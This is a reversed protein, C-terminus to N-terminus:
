FHKLIEDEFTYILQDGLSLYFTNGQNAIGLPAAPLDAIVTETPIPLSTNSLDIKYLAEPGAGETGIYLYDGAYHMSQIASPPVTAALTRSPTSATLDIKYVNNRPGTSSSNACYYLDDGVIVFNGPDGFPDTYYVAYSAPGISLDINYIVDGTGKFFINEKIALGNAIGTASFADSTSPITGELDVFRTESFGGGYLYSTAPEYVMKWVGAGAPWGNTVLERTPTSSALNIRAISGGNVEGAYLYDGVIVIDSPFFGGFASSYVTQGLCIPTYIIAITFLIITSRLKM